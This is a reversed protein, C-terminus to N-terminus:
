LELASKLNQALLSDPDDRLRVFDTESYVLSDTPIAPTYIQYSCSESFSKFDKRVVVILDADSDATWTGQVLSGFLYVKGIEPYRARAEAVARRLDRIVQERDIFRVEV